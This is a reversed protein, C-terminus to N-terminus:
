SWTALDGKNWDPMAGKFELAVRCKPAQACPQDFAAEANEAIRRLSSFLAAKEKNLISAERYATTIGPVCRM